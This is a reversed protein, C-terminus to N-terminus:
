KAPLPNGEADKLDMDVGNWYMGQVQWDGKSNEQM